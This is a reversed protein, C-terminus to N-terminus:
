VLFGTKTTLRVAVLSRRGVWFLRGSIDGLVKNSFHM